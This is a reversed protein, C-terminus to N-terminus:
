FSPATFRIELDRSGAAVRVGSAHPVARRDVLAEDIVVTPPAEHRALRKPDFVVVGKQTPFWCRGALDVAGPQGGGGNCERTKMGDASSLMVTPIIRDRRGAVVEALERKRVGFIGLDTSMFYVGTGADVISWIGDALLGDGSTVRVFREGRRVFLGAGTSG